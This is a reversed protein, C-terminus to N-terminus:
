TYMSICIWILGCTGVPHHTTVTRYLFNRRRMFIDLDHIIPRVVCLGDQMIRLMCRVWAVDHVRGTDAVDIYQNVELLTVFLPSLPSGLM